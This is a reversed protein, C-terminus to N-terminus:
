CPFVFPRVEYANATAVLLLFVPLLPLDLLEKTYPRHRKTWGMTSGTRLSRVALVCVPRRRGGGGWRAPGYRFLFKYINEEEPAARSEKRLAGKVRRTKVCGAALVVLGRSRSVNNIACSSTLLQTPWWPPAALLTPPLLWGSELHDRKKKREGRGEQFGKRARSKRRVRARCGLRLRLRQRPPLLQLSHLRERGSVSQYRQQEDNTSHRSTIQEGMPEPLASASFADTTAM